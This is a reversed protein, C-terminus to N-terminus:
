FRGAIGAQIAHSQRGPAFQGSYTVGVHLQESLDVGLRTEAFIVDAAVPVGSVTFGPVGAMAQTAVPTTEGLAHRWGAAGAVTMVLGDGAPLGASLRAGINTWGVSQGPAGGELAADGGTEAYDHAFAHAASLGAFPEIVVGGLDLGYAIEAFGRATGIDYTSTLRDSYGVLAVDRTIAVVHQSYAAGGRVAFGGAGAAAYAGVHYGQATGGAGADPVSFSTTSYGGLVGVLTTSDPRAEAGAVLGGTAHTRGGATADEATGWTGLARGWVTLAGAMPDPAVLSPASSGFPTPDHALGATQSLRDTMTDVLLHGDELLLSGVSAHISGSLTDLAHRAAAADPQLFVADAAANGGPAAVIAAAVAGQNPTNAASELAAGDASLTLLVAMLTTNDFGEPWDYAPNTWDFAYQTWDYDAELRLTPTLYALDDSLAVPDFMNVIDPAAFIVYDHGLAVAGDAPWASIALSGMGALDLQTAGTVIVLDASGDAGLEVAYVSSPGWALGGAVQVGISNGPATTGMNTVTGSVFFNGGFTADAGVNVAGDVTVPADPTGGATSSAGELELNGVIHTQADSAPSFAFSTNHGYLSGGITASGAFGVTKGADGGSVNLSGGITADDAIVAEAADSDLLLDGDVDGIPADEAVIVGAMLRSWYTDFSTVGNNRAHLYASWFQEPAVPAGGESVPAEWSYIVNGNLLYDIRNEDPLLRMDLTNWGGYSLLEATGPLEQWAGSSVGGSLTTHWVEIRGVGNVNTFSIIPFTAHADVYAGGAVDAEPMASGWLGTRIYDSSTGSEWANPIWLDGRLFANGAPVDLRQQYGQWNHFSSPAAPPSIGLQLVGSRGGFDTQQFVYGGARDVAWDAPDMSLPQGLAVSSACLAAISITGALPLGRTTLPM